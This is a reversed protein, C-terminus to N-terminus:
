TAAVSGFKSAIQIDGILTLLPYPRSQILVTVSVDLLCEILPLDAEMVSPREVAGLPISGFTWPSCHGHDVHVYVHSQLFSVVFM